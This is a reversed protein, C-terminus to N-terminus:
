EKIFKSTYKKGKNEVTVFYIGNAFSSVDVQLISQMNDVKQCLVNKGTVDNIILIGPTIGKDLKVFLTQNAPNPFLTFGSM